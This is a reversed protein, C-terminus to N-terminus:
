AETGRRVRLRRRAREAWRSNPDYVLYSQWHRRASELDGVAALAEALNYHADAYHPVLALARRLAAIAGARDGRSGRVVGLNNWAEAYDPALAVTAEFQAQADCRRRLAHYCNGLNFHADPTSDALAREYNRVAEDLRGNAEAAVGSMFWEDPTRLAAVGGASAKPAFDFVQQGGAELLRGDAARITVRRCGLSALLGHLAEDPDAVVTRAIRWARAIRAESWGARWLQAIARASAAARFPYTAGAGDASEIAGRERFRRLLRAPLGSRHALEVLSITATAVCNVRRM